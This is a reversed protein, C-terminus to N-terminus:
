RGGIRRYPRRYSESRGRSQRTSATDRPDDSQQEVRSSRSPHITSQGSLGLMEALSTSSRIRAENYTRAADILLGAAGVGQELQTGQCKFLCLQKAWALLATLQERGLQVYATVAPLTARRVVNVLITYEGDPVPDLALWDGMVAPTIPRDRNRGEWGSRMLDLSRVHSVPRPVGAITVDLVTPLSAEIERATAYMRAAFQARAPDRGIGDKMLVDELAGWGIGWAVDDHIGLVTGNSGATPNLADGTEVTVLELEGDVAPPPILQLTLNPVAAITFTSPIGSSYLSRNRALLSAAMMEDSPVALNYYRGNLTRWTARVVRIVTDPLAYIGDGAPILVASRRTLTHGTEALFADRRAQLLRTLETFAMMESMGTGTSPAYPEVLRYQMDGILDRDTVSPALGTFLSSLDYWATGAVTPLEYTERDYATLASWVRRAENVASLLEGQVWFTKGSDGLDQALRDVLTSVLTHSYTGSM